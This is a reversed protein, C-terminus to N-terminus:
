RDQINWSSKDTRKRLYSKSNPSITKLFLLTQEAFEKDVVQLNFNSKTISADTLYVGLLYALEKNLTCDQRSIIELDM